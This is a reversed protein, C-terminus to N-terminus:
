SDKGLPVGRRLPVGEIAETIEFTAAVKHPICPSVPRILGSEVARRRYRRILTWDCGIHEAIRELPLAIAQGHLAQSLHWIIALLKAEITQHDESCVKTWALDLVDPGGVPYRSISKAINQVEDCPLPPNCRRINETLLKSTIERANAGRRRLRGATRTLGDNRFGERLGIESSSRPSCVLNLLWPPSESLPISPDQYNYRSGNGHISPPLVAFGGNGRVDLGVALKGASCRIGRGVPYSFYLHRGRGTHVRLTDPLHWGKLAFSRLADEGAEGDSDLIFIGSALGTTVGWKCGPFQRAWSELRDLCTTASQPWGKVLPRKGQPQVPFIRWSRRAAERIESPLASTLNATASQM